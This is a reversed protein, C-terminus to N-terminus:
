GTYVVVKDGVKVEDFLTAIAGKDRVNVCGHSAGQYGRSAFDASYHVAQGGSFFMAYPMESGYETSVHNRSKWGVSFSGNRTPTEASGFRVDLVTKIEGDIVWALKRQKKSICLVRGTLCRDDLSMAAPSRKEPERNHKEDETPRRTMGHLRDLTRQDVEGTVPLQRKEQFGRVAAITGEGYRGDILKNYWGIQKLRAQLDRVEDGEAGNSLLAPGAVLINHKEEHTPERTMGVLADLTGRDVFGHVPLGRKGQFGEVALQTAADFDGTIPGEYWDLQLLRHQLDRIEEGSDGPSHLASVPEPTPVTETLPESAVETAEFEPAPSGAEDAAEPATTGEGPEPNVTAVSAVAEDRTPTAPLERACGAVALMALMPLVVLRRM